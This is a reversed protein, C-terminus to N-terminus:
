NYLHTACIHALYCQTLPAPLRPTHKTKVCTLAPEAEGQSGGLVASQPLQLLIFRRQSCSSCMQRGPSLASLGATLRGRAREASQRGAARRRQRGSDGRGEGGAAM